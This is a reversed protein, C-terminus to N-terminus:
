KILKKKNQIKELIKLTIKLEDSSIVGNNDKDICKFTSMMDKIDDDNCFNVLLSM